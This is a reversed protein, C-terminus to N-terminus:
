KPAPAGEKSWDKIVGEAAVRALEDRAILWQQALATAERDLEKLKEPELAKAEAETPCIKRCDELGYKRTIALIESFVQRRQDDRLPGVEVVWQAKFWFDNGKDVPPQAPAAPQGPAAPAAPATPPAFDQYDPQNRFVGTLPMKALVEREAGPTPIQVTRKCRKLGAILTESVFKLGDQGTRPTIGFIEVLMGPMGGLVPRAAPAAGEAPPAEPAPAAAPAPAGVGMESYARVDPVYHGTLSLMEIIGLTSRPPKDHKSDYNEFDKAYPWAEWVTRLVEYAYDENDVLKEIGGIKAQEAVLLKEQEEFKVQQAQNDSTLGEVARKLKTVESAGGALQRYTTVQDYGFCGVAGLVAVGAAVFFPRKRRMVKASLIEPPLLSTGITALGCGQIALGFVVGFSLVNERFLPAGLAEADGLSPFSEAKLVEVGLNQSIFKTLGALRFANGM